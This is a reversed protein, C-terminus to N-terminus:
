SLDLERTTKDTAYATAITATDTGLVIDTDNKSLFIGNELDANMVSRLTAESLTTKANKLVVKQTKNDAIDYEMTVTRSSTLTDNDGFLQINM